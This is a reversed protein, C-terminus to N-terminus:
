MTNGTVVNPDERANKAGIVFARAQANNGEPCDKMFHNNSGCKFCGQNRGKGNGNKNRTGNRNRNKGKGWCDEAQHGLKGCKDCRPIRCAREHHYKCKLCKPMSGQYAKTALTKAEQSPNADRKKNFGKNNHTAQNLSTHKRNKDGFSEAHTETKETPNLSLKKMRVCDETLSVALTVAETITQPKASTVM